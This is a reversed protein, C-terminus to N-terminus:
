QSLQLKGKGSCYPKCANRPILLGMQNPQASFAEQLLHSRLQFKPSSLIKNPPSFQLFLTLSAQKPPLPQPPPVWYQKTGRRQRPHCAPRSPGQLSIVFTQLLQWALGASEHSRSCLEATLSICGTRAPASPKNQLSTLSMSHLVLALFPQLLPHLTKDFHWWPSLTVASHWNSEFWCQSIKLADHFSKSPEITKRVLVNEKWTGKSRHTQESQQAM